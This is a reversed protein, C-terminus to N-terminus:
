LYAATASVDVTGGGALTFSNTGPDVTMWHYDGSHTVTGIVNSGNQTATWDDVDLVVDHTTKDGTV